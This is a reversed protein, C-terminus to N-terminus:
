FTHFNLSVPISDPGSAKSLDLSTIFKKILKPTVSVNYLKLNTGSLFDRLYIDLNDLNSNRSFNSVRLSRITSPSASCNQCSKGGM